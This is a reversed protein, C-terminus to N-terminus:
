IRSGTGQKKTTEHGGYGLRFIMNSLPFFFGPLDVPSGSLSGAAHARGAGPGQGLRGRGAGDDPVRALWRSGSAWSAAGWVLPSAWRAAGRATGLGAGDKSVAERLGLPQPPDLASEDPHTPAAPYFNEPANPGWFL